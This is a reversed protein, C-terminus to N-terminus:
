PRPAPDSRPDGGALRRLLDDVQRRTADLPGDNDIAFAARARKQPLPAQAAERRELEADTWGRARARVARSAPDAHVFVVVDCRDILGGELLLPADLLVSQGRALAADLEATIAKRIPPHTIAELRRRAAADAFVRAALRARDLRGGADLIEAGFAARLEAQLAPDEVAARSHRDADVHCLGHAAFAAAVTSKGAAIGGLLGIVVPTGPRFPTPTAPPEPRSDPVRLM